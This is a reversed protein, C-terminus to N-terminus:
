AAVREAPDVAALSSGAATEHTGLKFTAVVQRLREAQQQLSDTAAAAQEVLAANRQTSEDLSNVVESVREIGAYQKDASATVESILTSVSKVQSVIGEMTQGADRVLRAGADVREVSEAILSNIQKAAQASRQALLRVESAVVAFGRGQEGARAAEVAANLALINTQFAISDIVSTIDSIKRSSAAIGDMTTIVSLVVAGGETASASARESLDAATRASQSSARVAGTLQEVTAVTQQLASAQQETRQSLDLNGQAIERSATSVSEVSQYVETIAMRLSDSMQAVSALLSHPHQGQDANRASLDGAAIIKVVGRVYAPEGGLDQWVSKIIVVSAVVLGIVVALGFVISLWIGQRVSAASRALAENFSETAADQAAKLHTEYTKQERQMTAILVDSGAQDQGLMAQTAAMAAGVYRTVDAALETAVQSVNPTAGIEAALQKAKAAQESVGALRQKDAEAVAAQLDQLMTDHLVKLAGIRQLAPYQAVGINEINGALALNKVLNVGTGAAFLVFAVCPLLCIKTRFNM